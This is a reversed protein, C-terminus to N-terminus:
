DQHEVMAKGLLWHSMLSMLYAGRNAAADTLLHLVLM